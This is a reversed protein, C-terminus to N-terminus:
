AIESHRTGHTETTGVDVDLHPAAVPAGDITHALLMYNQAGISTPRSSVISKIKSVQNNVWGTMPIPEFVPTQLGLHHRLQSLYDRETKYNKQFMTPLVGLVRLRPNHEEAFRSITNALREIGKVSYRDLRTPILIHDAAGFANLTAQTIGPGCDILIYDYNNAIARIYSRLRTPAESERVLADNLRQLFQNSALVHLEKGVIAQAIPTQGTLVHALTKHEEGLADADFGCADTLNGQADADILLVRKGMSLFANGLTHATTTKAVGGKENAIAIIRAM